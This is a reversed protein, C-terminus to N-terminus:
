SKWRCVRMYNGSIGVIVSKGPTLQCWNKLNFRIFTPSTLKDKLEPSKVLEENMAEATKIVVEKIHKWKAEQQM